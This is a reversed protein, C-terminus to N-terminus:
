SERGEPYKPLSDEVPYWNSKYATYIHADPKVPIADDFAAIAIEIERRDAGKVRFGISSGCEQCFTRITGNPAQYEKLNEEGCIWKLGKVEVITAFASGHFKRCMSCHCHAAHDDFGTVSFQVSGCLCSGRYEESM